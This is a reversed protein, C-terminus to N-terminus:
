GCGRGLNREWKCAGPGSALNDLEKVIQALLKQFYKDLIIQYFPCVDTDNAV